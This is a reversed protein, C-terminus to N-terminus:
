NSTSGAQNLEDMEKAVAEAKSYFEDAKTRDVKSYEYFAKMLREYEAQLKQQKSKPKLWSFM